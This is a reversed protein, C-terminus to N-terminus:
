SKFGLEIINSNVNSIKSKIHGISEETVKTLLSIIDDLSSQNLRQADDIHTFIVKKIEKYFVSEKIDIDSLETCVKEFYEQPIYKVREIESHFVEDSLKKKIKEGSGWTLEGSFYSAKNEPKKRFKQDNLFSFHEENRSDGLLGVVDSLASKGSGKRGIISVFGPNVSLETDFWKEKLKGSKSRKIKISKIYRTPFNEINQAELPSEGVYVREDPEVLVMKLGTFTPDSKIWTMCNGIRDKERSKSFYHADSCDLLLDNVYANTLSKKSDEFENYNYSSIFVLDADNIIHKKEAISQRSWKINAWETKGVATLYKGKFYTSNQLLGMIHDYSFCLNNFGENLPSSYNPREEDPVSEIIKEGLDILSQKNVVGTFKSILRKHKPTLTYDVALANIFQGEITDLEITNSFIVHFNVNSLKSKSGGFKDLRFEIVPLLLEINSLRGEKKAKILKKYGDLFLYIYNEQQYIL